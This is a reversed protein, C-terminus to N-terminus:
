VYILNTNNKNSGCLRHRLTGANMCHADAAEKSGFYFIGTEINLILKCQSLRINEISEKTRKKGKLALSIKRKVEDTRKQGTNGLVTKKISEFSKKKGKQSLSMKLRTENSRNSQSISMRLKSEASVIKGKHALGIKRKTEDSHKGKSNGGDQLNLGYKNNFTQFLDVYYKEFENLQNIECLQVIEFKHKDVGYKIFSNYLKKQKKCHLYQYMKWRKEIDISQGIYIKKKPNIIKYIGIM